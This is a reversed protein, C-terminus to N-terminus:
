GSPFILMGPLPLPRGAPVMVSTGGPALALEFSKSWANRCTITLAEFM